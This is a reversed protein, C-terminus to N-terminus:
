PTDGSNHNPSVLGLKEASAHIQEAIERLELNKEEIARVEAKVESDEKEAIVRGAATLRYCRCVRTYGKYHRGGDWGINGTVNKTTGAEEMLGRAILAKIARRTRFLAARGEEGRTRFGSGWDDVFLHFFAETLFTIPVRAKGKGEHKEHTLAFFLVSRQRKGISTDGSQTKPSVDAPGAASM